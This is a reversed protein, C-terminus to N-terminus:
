RSHETGKTWMFDTEVEGERKFGGEEEGYDGYDDGGMQDQLMATNNNRDYGKGGGGKLVAKDAVISGLTNGKKGGTGRTKREEKEKEKHILTVNDLIKKIQQADCHVKLDKCLEKMFNEIRYPAAGGYLTKATQEGFKIYDKQDNLKM